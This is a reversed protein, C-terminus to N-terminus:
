ASMCLPDAPRRVRLRARSRLRRGEGGGVGAPRVESLTMPWGVGYYMVDDTVEPPAELDLVLDFQALVARGLAVHTPGIGWIPTHYAKEGLMSRRAPPRMDSLCAPVCAHLRM